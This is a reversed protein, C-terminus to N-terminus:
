KQGRRLMEPLGGGRGHQGPLARTLQRARPAQHQQTVAARGTMEPQEGSLRDGNIQDAHRRLREIMGTCRGLDRFQMGWQQSALDPKM